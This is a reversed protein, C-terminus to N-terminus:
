EALRAAHPPAARTDAIRVQAGRAALWRACSLGTDGLGLVLVNKGSLQLSDYNM